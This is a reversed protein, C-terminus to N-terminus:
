REEMRRFVLLGIAISGLPWALLPILRKQLYAGREITDADVTIGLALANLKAPADLAHLPAWRTDVDFGITAALGPGLLIPLVIFLATAGDRLLTAALLGLLPAALLSLFQTILLPPLMQFMEGQFLIPTGLHEVDAFALPQLWLTVLLVSLGIAVALLQFTSLLLARGLWLSTRPVPRLMLMRQAGTQRDSSFSVAGLLGGMLLGLVGVIRAGSALVNWGTDAEEPHLVGGAIAALTMLLLAVASLPRSRLLVLEFRACAFTTRIV